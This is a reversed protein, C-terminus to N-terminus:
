AGIKSLDRVAGQSASTSLAAYAKLASTVQRDRSVPRWAKAGRAKMEARRKELEADSVDINLSRNLIDIVVIDGENVLGINGGSAAEPSVHLVVTGYATGSM